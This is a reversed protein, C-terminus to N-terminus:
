RHQAPRPPEGEDDAAAHLTVREAGARPVLRQPECQGAEDAVAGVTRDLALRLALRGRDLLKDGPQPLAWRPRADVLQPDVLQRDVVRLLGEDDAASPGGRATGGCESWTADPSSVVKA